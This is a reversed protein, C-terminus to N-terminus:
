QISAKIFAEMATDLTKGAFSQIESVISLGTKQFNETKRLVSLARIPDQNKSVAKNITSFIQRMNKAINEATYEKLTIAVHEPLRIDKFLILCPFQTFEVNFVKSLTISIGESVHEDVVTAWTNNDFKPGKVEAKGFAIVLCDKGSLLDLEKGFESLYRIAEKDSPLLLFVAYCPYKRFERLIYHWWIRLSRPRKNDDTEIISPLSSDIVNINLAQENDIEMNNVVNVASYIPSSRSVSPLKQIIPALEKLKNITEIRITALYIKENPEVSYALEREIDGHEKLLAIFKKILIKEEQEDNNM